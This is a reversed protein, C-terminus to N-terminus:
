FLCKSCDSDVPQWTCIQYSIAFFTISKVVYIKYLVKDIQQCQFITSENQGRGELFLIIYYYMNFYSNM